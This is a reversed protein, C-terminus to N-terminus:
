YFALHNYVFNFLPPPSPQMPEASLSLHISCLQGSAWGFVPCGCLGMRSLLGFNASKGSQFISRKIIGVLTNSIVLQIVFTLRAVEM